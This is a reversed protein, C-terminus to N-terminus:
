NSHDVACRLVEYLQRANAQWSMGEVRARILDRDWRCNLAQQIADALAVPNEPEVQIGCDEDLMDPIGGVRSAVVPTGCALAELVVNPCGENRSPLVLVDAANMWLKVEDRGLYGLLRVRKELGHESIKARIEKELPGKGALALVTDTGELWGNSDRQAANLLVDLGKVPLLNGVYLVIRRDQPLGLRRRAERREILPFADADVGNPLVHIHAPRIGLDLAIDALNSSVAVVASAGRLAEVTGDHRRPYDALSHMDSGRVKVAYPVELDRALELAARGHPYAFTALIVDPPDVIWRRLARVAARYIGRWHAGRRLVPLYFFVPHYVAIGSLVSDPRGPLKLTRPDALFRPWPIPNIVEVHCHEALCEIQRRNYPGRWPQLRNPFVDSIVLCNM